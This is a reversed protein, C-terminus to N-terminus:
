QHQSGAHLNKCTLLANQLMLHKSAKSNCHTSGCHQNCCLLDIMRHNINSLLMVKKKPADFSLACPCSALTSMCAASCVTWACMSMVQFISKGLLEDRHYGVTEAFGKTAFVVPHGTQLPNTIVMCSMVCDLTEAM